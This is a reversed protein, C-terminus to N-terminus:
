HKLLCLTVDGRSDAYLRPPWWLAEEVALPPRQGPRARPSEFGRGESGYIGTLHEANNPETRSSAHDSAPQGYGNAQVPLGNM